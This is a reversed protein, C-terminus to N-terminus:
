TYLGLVQQKWQSADLRDGVGVGRAGTPTKPGLNAGTAGGVSFERQRGDNGLGQGQVASGARGPGAAAQQGSTLEAPRLNPREASPPPIAAGPPMEPKAPQAVPVSAPPYEGTSPAGAAPATPATRPQAQQGGTQQTAPAGAMEAPNQRLFDAAASYSERLQQTQLQQKQEPTLEALNSPPNALEGRQAQGLQEIYRRGQAMSPDSGLMQVTAAVQQDDKFAEGAASKVRELRSQLALIEAETAGKERAEAVKTEAASIDLVHHVFKPNSLASSLGAPLGAENQAALTSGVIGLIREGNPKRLTNNVWSWAQDIQGGFMKGALLAIFAGAIGGLLAGTKGGLLGGIGAGAAGGIGLETGRMAMSSGMYKGMPSTAMSERLRSLEEPTLANGIGWAKVQADWTNQDSYDFGQRVASQGGDSSTSNALKRM